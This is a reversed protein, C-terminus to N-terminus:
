CSASKEHIFLLAAHITLQWCEHGKFHDEAHIVNHENGDQSSFQRLFFLLPLPPLFAKHQGHQGSIIKRSSSHSPSCFGTKLM